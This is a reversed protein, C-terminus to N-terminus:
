QKTLLELQYVSYSMIVILAHKPLEKIFERPELPPIAVDYPLREACQMVDVRRMECEVEAELASHIAEPINQENQSQKASEEAEYARLFEIRWAEADEILEFPSVLVSLTADMLGSFMEVRLDIRVAYPRLAVIAAM